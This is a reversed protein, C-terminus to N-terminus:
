RPRARACTRACLRAGSRWTCRTPRLSGSMGTSAWAKTSCGEGLTADARVVLVNKGGFTALDTVDFSFPAYGSVVTDLYHGNFVVISNRFVGDFELAIRRGADAAAPRLRAPVLRHQYGPLQARVSVLRPRHAGARKRVAARHGL